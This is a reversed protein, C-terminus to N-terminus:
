TLMWGWEQLKKGTSNDKITQKNISGIGELDIFDLFSGSPHHSTPSFLIFRATSCAHLLVQLVLFLLLYKTNCSFLFGDPFAIRNLFREHELEVIM